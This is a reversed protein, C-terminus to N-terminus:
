EASFPFRALHWMGFLPSCIKITMAWASQFCLSSQISGPQSRAFLRDGMPQLAGVGQMRITGCGPRAASFVAERTGRCLGTADLLQDALNSSINTRTMLRIQCAYQCQRARWAMSM